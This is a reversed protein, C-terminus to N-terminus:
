GRMGAAELAEEPAHFIRLSLMKGDRITRLHGNRNEIEASSDKPLLRFKVFVVVQDGSEFFEEPEFTWADFPMLMEQFYEQVEERGRYTGANFAGPPTTLEFDPHADRFVADWDGRNFAEYSLRVIEVNEQSMGHESLAAAELAKGRDIYVETRVARGARFTLLHATRAEVEVGSGGGVGHVRVFVLVRDDGTARFSEAEVRMSRGWPTADFFTEMDEFRWVKGDPYANRFDLEAEPDLVGAEIMAIVGQETIGQEASIEYMRRAVEINDQSM